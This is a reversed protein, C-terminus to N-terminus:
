SSTTGTIATNAASAVRPIKVNGASLRRGANARTKNPVSSEMAAQPPPELEVVELLELEDVVVVVDPPVAVIVPVLEFGGAVWATLMETM